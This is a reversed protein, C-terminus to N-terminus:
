RRRGFSPQLGRRLGSRTGTGGSSRTAGPGLRPAEATQASRVADLFGQGSVTTTGLPISHGKAGALSGAAALVAATSSTAKDSPSDPVLVVQVSESGYQRLVTISAIDRWPIVSTTIGPALLGQPSVTALVRRGFVMKLLLFAGLGTFIWSGFWLKGALRESHSPSAAYVSCAYAAGLIIVLLFGQKLRSSRVVM